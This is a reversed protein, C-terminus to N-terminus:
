LQIQGKKWQVEITPKQINTWDHIISFSKSSNLKKKRDKTRQSQNVIKKRLNRNNYGILSEKTRIM